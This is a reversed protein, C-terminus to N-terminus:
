AAKIRGFWWKGDAELIYRYDEIGTRFELAVSDDSNMQTAIECRLDRMSSHTQMQPLEAAAEKDIHDKERPSLYRYNLYLRAAGNESLFKGSQYRKSLGKAIVYAKGITYAKSLKKKSM